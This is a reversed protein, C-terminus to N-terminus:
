PGPAERGVALDEGRANVDALAEGFRSSAIRSQSTAAPLLQASDFGVAAFM